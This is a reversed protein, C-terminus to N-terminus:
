LGSWSTCWGAAKVLKGPFLTCAGRDAAGGGVSSYLSCSECTAGATAGPAHQGDEVYHLQKAAPDAESVLPLAAAAADSAGATPVALRALPALPALSALSLGLGLRSLL